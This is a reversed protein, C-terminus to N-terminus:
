SRAQGGEGREAFDRRLHHVLNKMHFGQGPSVPASLGREALARVVVPGVAAVRTRGLGQRLSAELGRREAVEFLRQVQPSSTFVIAAVEGAELRGILGAVEDEDAAPAYVYPLVPRVTAGASALYGELEPNPEGSRTVGVTKGALAEAGLAAIVGATTPAPAVRTPALGLDKLAQGPKPGRTLTRVRGLAAVFAGGQGAREAVGRLRRVAEGTMLIVLDFRGAILEELWARVAAADPADRISLMPCRLPVAGEAELLRALDEAQRGEALAVVKGELPRTM